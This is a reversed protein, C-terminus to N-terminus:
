SMAPGSEAALRAHALARIRTAPGRDASRRLCDAPGHRACGQAGRLGAM